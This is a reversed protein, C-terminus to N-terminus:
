PKAARERLTVFIGAAVVLSAGGMVTVNPLISWAFFDIVIGWLLATYEIPAVVSAPAQRFAETIYYQGAAGFGGVAVILSYDESRIAVWGPLALATAIVSLILLFSFMISSSHDSRTLVRGIIAAVAYCLASVGAAIGALLPLGDARPQLIVLVGIFGIVIALWRAADVKERLWWAAITEARRGRREAEARSLSAPRGPRLM